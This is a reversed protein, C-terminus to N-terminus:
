KEIVTLRYKIKQALKLKFENINTHDYFIIDYGSIDFHIKPGDKKYNSSEPHHDERACLILHSLKEIGFVYGVELYCNPRQNTLDAIILKSRNILDSVEGALFRGQNHKDIRRPELKFDTIVPVYIKSWIEDLEKNGIQMIVFVENTLSKKPKNIKRKTTEIIIEAKVRAESVLNTWFFSDERPREINFEKYLGNMINRVRQGEGNAISEVENKIENEKELIINEGTLGGVEEYTKLLVEVIERSGTYIIKFANKAFINSHLTNEKNKLISLDDEIREYIVQRKLDFKKYVLSDM